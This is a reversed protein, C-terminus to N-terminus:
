FTLFRALQLKKKNTSFKFQLKITQCEHYLIRNYGLSFLFVNLFLTCLSLYAFLFLYQLFQKPIIMIKIYIRTHKYIYIYIYLSTFPIEM